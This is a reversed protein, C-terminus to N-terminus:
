WDVDLDVAQLELIHVYKQLIQGHCIVKRTPNYSSSNVCWCVLTKHCLEALQGYLTPHNLLYAEYKTVADEVSDVAEALQSDRFAYPNGWKSPRGIYVYEPYALLNDRIETPLSNM